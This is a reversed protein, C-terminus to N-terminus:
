KYLTENPAISFNEGNEEFCVTINTPNHVIKSDVSFILSEFAKVYNYIEINTAAWIDNSDGMIECFSELTDWRNKLDWSHGMLYFLLSDRRSCYQELPRKKLFAEAYKFLSPDNDRCTPMWSFWDEPLRFSGTENGFSRAYAIGLMKLYTKIEENTEGLDAYAFGRVIQGFFNELTKRCELVECIGDVPKTKILAIHNMGHIAVEHESPLYITRFEEVSLAKSDRRKLATAPLNFTGKFNYKNLIEVVEKDYCWADDYSFTLAKTKFEPFRLFRYLM